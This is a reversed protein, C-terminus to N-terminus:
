KCPCPYARESSHGAKQCRSNRRTGHIGMRRLYRRDADLEVSLIGGTGSVGAGDSGFETM